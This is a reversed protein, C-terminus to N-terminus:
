KMSKRFETEKGEEGRGERKEERGKKKKGKERKKEVNLTIKNKMGNWEFVWTELSTM